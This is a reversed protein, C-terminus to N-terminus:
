LLFFQNKLFLILILTGVDKPPSTDKSPPRNVVFKTNTYINTSTPGKMVKDARLEDLLVSPVWPSENFFEMGPDTSENSTGNTGDSIEIEPPFCM